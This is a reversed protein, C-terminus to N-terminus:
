ELPNIGFALTSQAVAVFARVWGARDVAFRDWVSLSCKQMECRREEPIARLVEGTKDYDSEPIFVACKSWDVVHENFPPLWGDAYVVPIAGASLIESFRYSFLLDGRPSGAFVSDKMVGKYNNSDDVKGETDGFGDIRIDKKYSDREGYLRIYMDTDNNFKRMNERGFGSHGQFSFLYKRKKCSQVAEREISTLEIPKIAPPVMGVDFFPRLGSKEISYYAVIVQNNKFIEPDHNCAHRIRVKEVGSCDLIVLRSDPNAKLAPSTAARKIFQCSEKVIRVISNTLEPHGPEMNVKWDVAGYVPYNSEICTEVDMFAIIRREPDPKAEMDAWASANYMPHALTANFLEGGLIRRSFSASQLTNWGYNTTVLEYGALPAPEGFSSQQVFGGGETWNTFFNLHQLTLFLLAVM